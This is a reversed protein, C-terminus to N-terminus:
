IFIRAWFDDRHYIKFFHTMELNTSPWLAPINWIGLSELTGSPFGYQKCDHPVYGKKTKATTHQWKMSTKKERGRQAKLFALLSAISLL